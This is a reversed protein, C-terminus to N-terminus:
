GITITTAVEGDSRVCFPPDLQAAEVPLYFTLTAPVAAV